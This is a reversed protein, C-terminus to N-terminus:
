DLKPQDVLEGMQYQGLDHLRDVRDVFGEAGGRGDADIDGGFLRSVDLEHAGKGVRELRGAKGLAEHDLDRLVGEDGLGVELIFDQRDEALEPDADGD